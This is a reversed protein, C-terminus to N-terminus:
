GRGGSGCIEIGVFMPLESETTSIDDLVSFLIDQSNSVEGANEADEQKKAFEPDFNPLQQM